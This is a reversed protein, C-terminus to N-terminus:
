GHVMIRLHALMHLNHAYTQPVFLMILGVLLFIKKIM